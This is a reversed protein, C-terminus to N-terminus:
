DTHAVEECGGWGVAAERLEAPRRMDWGARRKGDSSGWRSVAAERDTRVYSVLGRCTFARMNGSVSVVGAAGKRERRRRTKSDSKRTIIKRGWLAESSRQLLLCLERLRAAFWSMAALFFHRMKTLPHCVEPAVGREAQQQPATKLVTNM